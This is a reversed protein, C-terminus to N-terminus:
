WKTIICKTFPKSRCVLIILKIPSEDIYQINGHQIVHHQTIFGSIIIDNILLVFSYVYEDVSPLRLNLM